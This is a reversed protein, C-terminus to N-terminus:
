VRILHAALSQKRFLHMRIIGVRMRGSTKMLRALSFCGYAPLMRSAALFTRKLPSFCHLLPLSRGIWYGLFCAMIVRLLWNGWKTMM